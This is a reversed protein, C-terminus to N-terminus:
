TPKVQRSRASTMQKIVALSSTTFAQVVKDMDIKEAM